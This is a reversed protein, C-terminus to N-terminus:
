AAQWGTGQLSSVATGEAEVALQSGKTEKCTGSRAGGKATLLSCLAGQTDLFLLRSLLPRSTGRAQRERQEDGGDAEEDREQRRRGAVGSRGLLKMLAAKSAEPGKCLDGPSGPGSGAGGAM